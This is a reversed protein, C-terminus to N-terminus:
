LTMTLVKKGANTPRTMKSILTENGSEMSSPTTGKGKRQKEIKTIDCLVSIHKRCYNNPMHKGCNPNTIISCKAIRKKKSNSHCSVLVEYKKMAYEHFCTVVKEETVYDSPPIFLFLSPFMFFFFCFFHVVM